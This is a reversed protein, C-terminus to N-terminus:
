IHLFRTFDTYIRAAIKALYAKLIQLSPWFLDSASNANFLFPCPGCTM